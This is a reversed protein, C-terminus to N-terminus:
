KTKVIKTGCIRCRYVKEDVNLLDFERVVKCKPCKNEVIKKVKSKM